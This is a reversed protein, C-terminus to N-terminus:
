LKSNLVGKLNNILSTIIWKRACVRNKRVETLKPLFPAGLFSDRNASHTTQRFSGLFRNIKKPSAGHWSVHFSLFIAPIKVQPRVSAMREVIQLYISM